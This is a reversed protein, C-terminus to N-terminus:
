RRRKSSARWNNNSDLTIHTRHTLGSGTSRELAAGSERARQKADRNNLTANDQQNRPGRIITQQNVRSKGRLGANMARRSRVAQRETRNNPRSTEGKPM